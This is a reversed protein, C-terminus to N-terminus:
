TSSDPARESSLVDYQGGTSSDQGSGAYKPQGASVSNEASVKTFEQEAVRGPDHQGGVDGTFTKTEPIDGEHLNKGKPKLEGESRITAAYNPATDASSNGGSQAASAYSSKSTDTQGSSQGTAGTSTQGSSQATAKSGSSIASDKTSSSGTAAGGDAFSDGTAGSSTGRSKTDYSGSNDATSAGTYGQDSVTGEFQPQGAAEPYKLGSVGKEDSGLGQADQKVRANGDAAAHLVTAGSTDTTNFTSNSGKVSSVHANDNEAFEGGAKISEAALSDSAVAGTSEQAAEDPHPQKARAPDAYSM